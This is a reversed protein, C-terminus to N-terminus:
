LGHREDGATPSDKPCTERELRGEIQKDIKIPNRGLPAVSACATAPWANGVADM